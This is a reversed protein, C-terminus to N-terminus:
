GALMTSSSVFTYGLGQIGDVTQKLYSTGLYPHYFFSATGDRVVLNRKASAVIDAPLHPPNNNSWELEVNGINEPVVATGYVDRVPYPFFQGVMHPYDATAGTLSGPFYLTRDYRKGFVKQVVQYDPLSGAYHPFEFMTPLPLGAAFFEAYSAMIRNTAYASSDTPVPGDFRVYDAADVHATYFEFDDASRANYPNALSEYQHTYGHMLLTGGKSIMYKLASVVQPRQRLTYDEPRGRNEFGKPNRYRPYVAVTFPIRKSGLYDAIARLEVPDADPGVDEIRVLARHRPAATPALGDYLLDAFAMYRDDHSVYAFPIEGVYTFNASRVAWPFSSGDARNATALVKAKAPDSIVHDMIGAGNNADRTLSTGKYTVTSVASLDFQRWTFGYKAAFGPQRSTLQWINDYVWTVPKTTAYVDDLFATPLPEDYTSGLYIVATYGALQGATYRGVPEAAWSGFHSTLNAVQTGYVEGLWAYPGTNDYLVLTKATGTPSVATGTAVPGTAAGTAAALTTFGSGTRLGTTTTVSKTATRATGKGPKLQAPTPPAPVQPSEGEGTALTPASGDTVTRGRQVGGVTSVDIGGHDTGGVGPTGPAVATAAGLAGAGALLAATFAGVALRRSRSKLLNRM